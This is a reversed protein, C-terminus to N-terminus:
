AGHPVEGAELDRKHARMCAHLLARVAFPRLEGRLRAGGGATLFPWDDAPLIQWICDRDELIRCLSKISGAPWKDRRRANKKLHDLWALVTQFDREFRLSALQGRLGGLQSMAPGGRTWKLLRRREGADGSIGLCARVIEQKWCESEILRAYTLAPDDEPLPAPASGREPPAEPRPPAPWDAPTRVLLPDNFRIQGYGEATREGIGGAELEALVRPDIAGAVQYAM